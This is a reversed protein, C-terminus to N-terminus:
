GGQMPITSSLRGRVYSVEQFRMANVIFGSFIPKYDYQSTVAVIGEGEVGLGLNRLSSLVVANPTMNRTDRWLPQPNSNSDFRISVVDVGYTGAAFPVLSLQGAAIADDIDAATVTKHRAILDATVQSARITKQAALIGYGMDLTGLLITLLLPFIMAAETAAVANEERYWRKFLGFLRTMM